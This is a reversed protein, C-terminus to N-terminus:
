RFSSLDAAKYGPNNGTATAFQERNQGTADALALNARFQKDAFAQQKGMADRYADVQKGQQYAGYISGAGQLLSAGVGAAGLYNFDAAPTTPVEGLTGYTGQLQFPSKATNLTSAGSYSEVGAFTPNPANTIIDDPGIVLRQRLQFPSTM